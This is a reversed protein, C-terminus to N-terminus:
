PEGFGVWVKTFPLPIFYKDWRRNFVIARPAVVALPVIPCQAKGALFLSGPKMKFIPGSPGDVAICVDSGGKIASLVQMLSKVRDAAKEDESIRIVTYGFKRAVRTLIEGRLSKATLICTKKGRYQYLPVFTAQHWFVFIVKQNKAAFEELPRLNVPIIRLSRNIM